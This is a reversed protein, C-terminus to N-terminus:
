CARPRRCVRIGRHRRRSGVRLRRRGRQRGRERHRHRPNPRDHHPAAPPPRLRRLHHRQDPRLPLGRDRAGPRRQHRAPAPPVVLSRDRRRRLRDAPRRHRRHHRLPLALHLQRAFVGRAQRRRVGGAAARAPPPRAGCRRRQAAARLRVRASPWQSLDRARHGLPGHRDGRRGGRCGGSRERAGPRAPVRVRHGTPDADRSLGAAGGDFRGRVGGARRPAGQHDPAPLGRRQHRGGRARDGRGGRAPGGHRRAGRRRLGDRPQQGLQSRGGRRHRNAGRGVAAGPLRVEQRCAHRSQQDGDGCQDLRHRGIGAASRHGRVSRHRGGRQSGDARRRGGAPDM